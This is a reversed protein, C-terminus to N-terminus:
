LIESLAGEPCSQIGAECTYAVQKEALRWAYVFGEGCGRIERPKLFSRKRVERVGGQTPCSELGAGCGKKM